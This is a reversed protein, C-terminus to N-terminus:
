IKTTSPSIVLFIALHIDLYVLMYKGLCHLEVNCSDSSLSGSIFIRWKTNVEFPSIVDSIVEMVVNETVHSILWRRCNVEDDYYLNYTGTM